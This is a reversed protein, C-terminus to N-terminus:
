VHVVDFCDLPHEGLTADLVAFVFYRQRSHRLKEKVVGVSKVDLQAVVRRRRLKNFLLYQLAGEASANSQTAWVVRIDPRRLRLFHEEILHRAEWQPQQEAVRVVLQGHWGTHCALGPPSLGRPEGHRM